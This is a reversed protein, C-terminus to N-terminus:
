LPGLAVIVPLMLGAPRRPVGMLLPPMPVREYKASVTHPQSDVSARQEDLVAEGMVRLLALFPAEKGAMGIQRGPDHNYIGVAADREIDEGPQRRLVNRQDLHIPAAFCYDNGAASVGGVRHEGRGLSNGL